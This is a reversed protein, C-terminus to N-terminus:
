ITNHQIFFVHFPLTSHLHNLKNWSRLELVCFWSLWCSLMNTTLTKKCVVSTWIQVHWLSRVMKFMDVFRPLWIFHKHISNFVLGTVATWTQTEVNTFTFGSPTSLVGWLFKWAQKHCCFVSVSSLFKPSSVPNKQRSRLVDAPM